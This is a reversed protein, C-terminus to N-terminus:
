LSAHDCRKERETMASNGESELEEQTGGMFVRPIVLGGGQYDLVVGWKLLRLKVVDTFDRKSQLTVNM